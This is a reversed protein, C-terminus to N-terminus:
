IPGGPLTLAAVLGAVFLGVALGSRYRLPFDCTTVIALLTWILPAAILALSVRSAPAWDAGLSNIVVAAFLATLGAVPGAMVAIWVRRALRGRSDPLPPSQAERPERTRRRQPRAQHYHRWGFGGVLAASALMMVLLAMAVGRDSGNAAAWPWLSAALLLWAAARILRRVGATDQEWTLWLLGVGALALVSGLFIM